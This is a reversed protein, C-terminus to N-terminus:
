EIKEYFEDFKEFVGFEMLDFLFICRYVDIVEMLEEFQGQYIGGIVYFFDKKVEIDDILDFKCNYNEFLDVWCEFQIYFVEFCDIVKMDLFDIGFVINYVDIVDQFMDEIVEEYIIGVQYFLDKKIDEDEVVDVKFKFIDVFCTWEQFYRYINELDEISELDDFMIDIVDYFCVVIFEVDGIYDVYILVVQCFLDCKVM